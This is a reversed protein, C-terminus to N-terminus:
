KIIVSNVLRVKSRYNIQEKLAERQMFLEHRMISSEIKAYLINNVLKLETTKNAIADGVIARWTDPLHGEAVRAAIYPRALFEQIVDGILITNTRKM